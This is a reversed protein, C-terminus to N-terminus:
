DVKEIADLFQALDPLSGSLVEVVISYDIRDYAHALLNRFASMRILRDALDSEILGNETLIEFCERNTMPKRFHKYAITAEALDITAQVALYLYREVAGRLTADSEIEEQSRGKYIDLLALYKRVASAKNEIVHLNTM